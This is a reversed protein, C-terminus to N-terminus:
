EPKSVTSLKRISPVVVLTARTPYLIESNIPACQTTVEFSAAAELSYVIASLMSFTKGLGM